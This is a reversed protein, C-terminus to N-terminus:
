NAMGKITKVAVKIVTGDRRMGKAEALMVLGFQGSGLEGIINLDTRPFAFEEDV